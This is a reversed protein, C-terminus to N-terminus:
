KNRKNKIIVRPMWQSGKKQESFVTIYNTMSAPAILLDYIIELFSQLSKNFFVYYFTFTCTKLFGGKYTAELLNSLDSNRKESIHATNYKQKWQCSTM